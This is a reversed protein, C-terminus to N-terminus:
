LNLCVNKIYDLNVSFLGIGWPSNNGYKSSVWLVCDNDNRLFGNTVPYYVPKPSLLLYQMAKYQDYKQFNIYDFCLYNWNNINVSYLLGKGELFLLDEIM